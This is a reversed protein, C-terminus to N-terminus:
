VDFDRVLIWSTYLFVVGASKFSYTTGSMLLIKLVKTFVTDELLNCFFSLFRHEYGGFFFHLNKGTGKVLSNRANSIKIAHVVPM